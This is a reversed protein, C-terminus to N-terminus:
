SESREASRWTRSVSSGSRDALAMAEIADRHKRVSHLSLGLADSAERMSRGRIFLERAVRRRSQGWQHRHAVVYAVRPDSLRAVLDRIRRRVLRPSQKVMSAISTAHQGRDFMALILECDDPELWHARRVVLSSLDTERKRRLDLRQDCDSLWNESGTVQQM